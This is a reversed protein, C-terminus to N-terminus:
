EEKSKEYKVPRRSDINTPNSICELCPYDDWNVRSYKCKDCYQDFDVIKINNEM